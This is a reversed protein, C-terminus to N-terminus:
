DVGQLVEGTYQVLEPVSMLGALLQRRVLGAPVQGEAAAGGGVGSPVVAPAALVDMDMPTASGNAHAAAAATEDGARGGAITATPPPPPPAGAATGHVGAAWAAQGQVQHGVAVAAAAELEQLQRHAEQVEAQVEEEQGSSSSGPGGLVEWLLHVHQQYPEGPSGHQQLLEAELDHAAQFFDVATVPYLAAALLAVAQDRVPDGLPRLAV